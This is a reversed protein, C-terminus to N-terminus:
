LENIVGDRMAVTIKRASCIVPTISEDLKM